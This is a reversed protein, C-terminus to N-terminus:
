DAPQEQSKLGARLPNQDLAEALSGQVDVEGEVALFALACLSEWASHVLHRLHRHQCVPSYGGQTVGLDRAKGEQDHSFPVSCVWQRGYKQEDQM